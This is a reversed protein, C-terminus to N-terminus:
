VNTTGRGTRGLRALVTRAKGRVYAIDSHTTFVRITLTLGPLLGHLMESIAVQREDPPLNPCYICLTGEPIADNKQIRVRIVQGCRTDSPDKTLETEIEREIDKESHPALLTPPDTVYETREYVLQWRPNRTIIAEWAQKTRSLGDSALQYGRTIFSWDDLRRYKDLQDTPSRDSALFDKVTDEFVSEMEFEIAQAVRHHYVTQFLALRTQLFRALASVARDQLVVQPRSSGNPWIVHTYYLIRQCDVAQPSVGTMYGDRAVFDLNDVTVPGVFLTRLVRLWSPMGAEEEAPLRKCILKGIDAPDLKEHDEMEGYPSRRIDGIMPGLETEVIIRGLSEHDLDWCALYIDDFFHGFPGHGIDHLLGAVRATEVFKNLSPLAAREDSPACECLFGHLHYAFEGALHMVGLSHPFRSHEASPFVWWASQLQHIRKLRQVWHSDILDQEAVHDGVPKTFPIAGVIPDFIINTHVYHADYSSSTSM